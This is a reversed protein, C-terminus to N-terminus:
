KVYIDASESFTGDIIDIMALNQHWTIKQRVWSLHLELEIMEGIERTM